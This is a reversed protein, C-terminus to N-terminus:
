RRGGLVMSIVQDLKREFRDLRTDLREEVRGIRDTNDGVDDVVQGYGFAASMLVVVVAVPLVM